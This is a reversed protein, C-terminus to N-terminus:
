IHNFLQIEKLFKLAEKVIGNEGVINKMSVLEEGLAAVIIDNRKTQLSMCEMFVHRISLLERGCYPCPPMVSNLLETEFLYGHTARTHGLRIRNLVVEERRNLGPPEWKKPSPKLSKFDRTEASWRTGWIEYMKSDIYPYWDKYPLLLNEKPMSSVEKAVKDAEENGPIGVHSPVWMLVVERNSSLEEHILGQVRRTLEEQQTRDTLRQIAGLSDSCILLKQTVNRKSHILEIALKVAYTEATLISTIDPMSVKKNAEGLLVAASGVGERSKSGDTFIVTHEGYKRRIVDKFKARIVHHPFTEKGYGMMEDEIGPLKTEHTYVAPTRRPLVLNTNLQFNNVARAIKHVVPATEGRQQFFHVLDQNVVSYFAPSQIHHKIKYFYQCRLVDRRLDLPPEHVLVKMSSVPSTRFAGTIIRLADNAITEVTRLDQTSASGYVISGYDIRSRILARYLRMGVETDAGWETNCVSKLLNLSQTCKAKLKVIHPKWTLKSDWTLGLFKFTEVRPIENQNLKTIIPFMPGIGKHFELSVTKSNSFSFGNEM